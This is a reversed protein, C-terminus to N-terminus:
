VCIGGDERGCAAGDVWAVSSWVILGRGGFDARVAMEVCVGEMSWVRVTGDFSGSLLHGESVTLSTICRTHGEVVDECLGTGVDWVRVSHFDSGSVLRGGVFLMAQVIDTHGVLTRERELTSRSWAVICGVAGRVWAIRRGGCVASIALRREGGAEFKGRRGGM